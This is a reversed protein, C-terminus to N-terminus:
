KVLHYIRIIGSVYVTDQKGSERDMQFLIKELPRDQPDFHKTIDMRDKTWERIPYEFLENQGVFINILGNENKNQKIHIFEFRVDIKQSKEFFVPIVSKSTNPDTSHFLKFSVSHAILLSGENKETIGIPFLKSHWERIIEGKTILGLTTVISILGFFGYIVGKVYAIYKETKAKFASFEESLKELKEEM